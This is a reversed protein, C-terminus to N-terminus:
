EYIPYILTIVSGLREGASGYCGFKRPDGESRLANHFLSEGTLFSDSCNPHVQCEESVCLRGPLKAPIINTSVCVQFVPKYVTYVTYIYKCIYIYVYIYIYVCSIYIYICACLIYIYIYVHIHHICMAHYIWIQIYM